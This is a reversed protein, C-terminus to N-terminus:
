IKEYSKLNTPIVIRFCVVKKIVHFFEIYIVNAIFSVNKLNNSFNFKIVILKILFFSYNLELMAMIYTEKDIIFLLIYLWAKIISSTKLLIM